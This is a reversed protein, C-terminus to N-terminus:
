SEGGELIMRRLEGVPWQGPANAERLFGYNLVSGALALRPRSVKGLPGMGMLSVRFAAPDPAPSPLAALSVEGCLSVMAALDEERELWVALKGIDAGLERAKGMQERLTEMGPFVEFNHYSLVAKVGAERAAAVAPTMAVASRIETDMLMAYPLFRTYLGLRAADDLGHEGGEEPCRATILLPLAPSVAAAVSEARDLCLLLNDLRFELVDCSMALGTPGTAEVFDLDAASCVPAVVAARGESIGKFDM